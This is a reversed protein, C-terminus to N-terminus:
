LFREALAVDNCDVPNAGALDGIFAQEALLRYVTRRRELPRLSVEYGLDEVRRQQAEALEVRTFVGVSLANNLEGGAIIHGDIAQGQLERMMRRATERSGTPPVYVLYDPDGVVEESMIRAFGGAAQIRTKLEDVDELSDFPGVSLCIQPQADALQLADPAGVRDRAPPPRSVNEHAPRESVRVLPAADLEPLEATERAVPRMYAFAAYVVNALLLALVVNRLLSEFIM